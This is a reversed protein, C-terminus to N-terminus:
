SPDGPRPSGQCEVESGRLEQAALLAIPLWLTIWERGLNQVLSRTDFMSATLGFVLLLLYISKGRRLFGLGQWASWGLLATLLLTAPLGGYIQNALLLNHPSRQPGEKGIFTLDTLSGYGMLPREAIADVAQQWLAFHGSQGRYYLMEVPQLDAVVAVLFAGAVLAIVAGAFRRDSALLGLVLAAALALLPGRSSALLMFAGCLAIVALWLLREPWGGARPLLVFATTLMVFGYLTAGIVPHSALGYGSLRWGPPTLGLLDAAFLVVLTLGATLALWFFLQEEIRPRRAALLVSIAFFVALLLTVRLLDAMEKWSFGSGWYGAVVFYGVYFVSLRVLRSRWLRGADLAYLNVLFIPLVLYFLARHPGTQLM